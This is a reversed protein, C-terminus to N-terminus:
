LTTELSRVASDRVYIITFREGAKYISITQGFDSADSVRTKDLQIIIDGPTLGSKEAVSGPSIRGVYAGLIPPSGPKIYKEADAVAAGFKPPPRSAASSIITDLRAKDFGVIVQGDIVTV